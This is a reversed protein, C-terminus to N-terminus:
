LSFWSDDTFGVSGEGCDSSRVFRVKTGTRVDFFHAKVDTGAALLTDDAGVSLSWVEHGVPIVM